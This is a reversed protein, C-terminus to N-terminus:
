HQAYWVDEASATRPSDWPIPLSATNVNIKCTEDDTWWAIRSVIPNEETPQGGDKGMAKFKGDSGVVGPSGDQLFYIWRVPMALQSKQADVGNIKKSSLSGKGYSFGETNNTDSDQGNYRSPDAIPYILRAKLKQPNDVDKAANSPVVPRNLDVYMDPKKDWQPDVDNEIEEMLPRAGSPGTAIGSIVMKEASYLKYCRNYDVNSGHFTRMNGPGSTWIPFAGSSKPLTTAQRIQAMVLNIATDKLTVVRQMEVTGIATVKQSQAMNFFSIILVTMLSVIALVTIIAVGRRRSKGPALKFLLRLRIIKPKKM